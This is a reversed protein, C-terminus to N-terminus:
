RVQFTIEAPHYVSLRPSTVIPQHFMNPIVRRLINVFIIEETYTVELPVRVDSKFTHDSLFSSHYRPSASDPSAPLSIFLAPLCNRVQGMVQGMRIFRFPTLHNRM